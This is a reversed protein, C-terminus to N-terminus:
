KTHISLHVSFRDDSKDIQLSHRDPYALTLQRAVNELGIGGVKDKTEENPPVSNDVHLTIKEPATELRIRIWGKTLDEIRSHKFANEIFPIFLLPAVLLDPRSDDLHVNVNMGRSDKLMKLDIYNRIYEIEKALPVRDAKCDYLMYRLMNSLKLLHDPAVDSKLVVLAYINNLANFLFHPNIQSKLFKMEAELKENALRITEREKQGAYQAIGFVSSGLFATLFPIARSIQWANRWGRPGSSGPPRGPAPLVDWPAGKIGIIITLMVILAFGLLAFLFAKKRFFFRPLLFHLNVIVLFAIGVLNAINRYLFRDFVDRTNFVLPLVMWLGGWFLIQYFTSRKTMSPSIETRFLAM